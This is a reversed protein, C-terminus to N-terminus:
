TWFLVIEEAEASDEYNLHTIVQVMAGGFPHESGSVTRRRGFHHLVVVLM